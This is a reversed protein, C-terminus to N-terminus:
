EDGIAKLIIATLMQVDQENLNKLLESLVAAELNRHEEQAKKGEETLLLCYSRKDDDVPQSMILGKKKLRNAASTFTSKPIDLKACIGKPTIKPNDQIIQMISVETTSLDVVHEYENLSLAKRMRIIITHWMRNLVEIEQKYM